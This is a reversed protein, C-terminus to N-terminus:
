TARRAPRSAVERGAGAKRRGDRRWTVVHEAGVSGGAPDGEELEQRRERDEREGGAERGRGDVGEGPHGGQAGGRM